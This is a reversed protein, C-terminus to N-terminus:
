GFRGALQFKVKVKAAKDKSACSALIPGLASLCVSRLRASIFNHFELILSRISRALRRLSTWVSGNRIVVCVKVFLCAWAAVEYGWTQWGKFKGSFRQQVFLHVGQKAQGRAWCLSSTARGHHGHWYIVLSNAGSKVSGNCLWIRWSAATPTRSQMPRGKPKPLGPAPCEAEEADVKVVATWVHYVFMPFLKREVSM